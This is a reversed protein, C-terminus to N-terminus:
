RREPDALDSCHYNAFGAPAVGVSSSTLEVEGDATVIWGTAEVLQPPISQPENTIPPTQSMQQRLAENEVPTVWEGVITMGTLPESPSPPLGGRGTIIFESDKGRVCPDKGILHTADVVNKPLEVLGSTAQVDPTHIQVTGSFQPGLESTATIDSTAPSEALRFETGFIGRADISVRGGAGQQANATIDGNALAALTGTNITINGGDNTGTNTTINGGRQLEINQAHIKINGGKGSVTEASIRSGDSVQILDAVIELTGADGSVLSYVGVQSEDRMILHPTFLRLDGAAGTANVPFFGDGSASFLGSNGRGDISTGVLEVSEFARVTLTGGQGAGESSASIFGGDSILLRRTVVTVNGSPSASYSPAGIGTVYTGDESMGSIEISESANININGGDGGIPIIGFRTRAGSLNLILAGEDLILKRTNINLNSGSGNGGISGVFIGTAVLSNVPNKRFYLFDLANINVNGANGQNITISAINAAAIGTLKGTNINLDGTAGNAGTTVLLGSGNLEISQPAIINLNGGNGEGFTDAAVAAGNRLILNPTNISLNGGSGQSGTGTFVGSARDSLSRQGNFLGAVFKQEYTPFGTGVMEVSQSANLSIDGGAGIGFTTTSIFAEEQIQIRNAQIDIGQGNEDGLTNAIVQSNQRLSINDGQLQIKGGGVGSADIIAQNSLDINGFRQINQYGWALGSGSNTLEVQNPSAVSAIQIQGFPAILQGGEIIVDGGILALTQGPNVSLGGPSSNPIQAVRSRSIIAGPNEGFQLGVPGNITLLPTTTTPTASFSTDPFELSNATTALFSGGINLRANEGFIIGNPNLLFLNASGNAKILGDINSISGGTVRSFINQINVHNDFYATGGTPLSFERFSHFLNGGAETGGTIRNIQGEVNIVSNNPLTTDPVIQANTRSPLAIALGTALYVSFALNANKSKM